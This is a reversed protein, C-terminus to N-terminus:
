QGLIIKMREIIEKPQGLVEKAIAELEEGGSPKIELNRKSAEALFEADNITQAFADRLTKLREAPIGPPAVFPRGIEGAALIVTALRRGAEPTKYQDMLEHITPVLPLRDDRKKPDQDARSSTEKEGVPLPRAYIISPSPGAHSEGRRRSISM